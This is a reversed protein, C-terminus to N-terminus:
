AAFAMTSLLAIEAARSDLRTHQVVIPVDSEIVSAYSTGTPVPAPDELDNFRVHSTRRAGVTLKYPGIPEDDTLFVTIEIHADTDGSNLICAAEHSMLAHDANVMSAPPIYGEPIVWRTKGIAEMKM